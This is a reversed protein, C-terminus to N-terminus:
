PDGTGGYLYASWKKAWWYEYVIQWRNQWPLLGIQRVQPAKLLWEGAPLTGILGGASPPTVVTGVGTYSVSGASLSNCLVTKRLIYRTEQVQTIGAQLLMQLKAQGTSWGAPTTTANPNENLFVYVEQIDSSTMSAFKAHNHVAILEEQSVLEYTTQTAQLESYAANPKGTATCTAEAGNEVYDVSEYGQGTRKSEYIALVAAKAGRWTDIQRQGDAPTCTYRLGQVVAATSGINTVSM